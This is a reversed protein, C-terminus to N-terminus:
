LRLLFGEPKSVEIGTQPEYYKGECEVIVHWALMDFRFAVVHAVYGQKGMLAAALISLDECDGAGRLLTESPLQWHDLLVTDSKYTINESVWKVIELPTDGTDLLVSNLLPVSCSLALMSFCIIQLARTKPIM